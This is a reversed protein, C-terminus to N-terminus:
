IVPRGGRSCLSARCDGGKRERIRSTLFAHAEIPQAEYAAISELRTYQLRNVTFFHTQRAEAGALTAPGAMFRYQTYHSHEHFLASMVLEFQDAGYAKPNILLSPRASVFRGIIRPNKLDRTEIPPTELSMATCYASLLKELVKYRRAPSWGSWHARADQLLERHDHVLRRIANMRPEGEHELFEPDLATLSHLQAALTMLEEPALDPDSCLAQILTEHQSGTLGRLVAPAVSLVSRVHQSSNSVSGSRGAVEIAMVRADLIGRHFSVVRDARRQTEQLIDRARRFAGPSRERSDAQALHLDRHLACYTSYVADFDAKAQRYEHPSEPSPGIEPGLEGLAPLPDRPEALTSIEAMRGEQECWLQAYEREFDAPNLGEDRSIQDFLKQAACSAFAM